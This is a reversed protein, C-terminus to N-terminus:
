PLFDSFMFEGFCNKKAWQSFAEGLSIVFLCIGPSHGLFLLFVM